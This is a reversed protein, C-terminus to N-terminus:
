STAVVFIRKACQTLADAQQVFVVVRSLVIINNEEVSTVDRLPILMSHQREAVLISTENFEFVVVKLQRRVDALARPSNLPMSVASKTERHQPAESSIHTPM